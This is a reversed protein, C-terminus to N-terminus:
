KSKKTLEVVGWILLLAGIGGMTWYLWTMGGTDSGDGVASPDIGNARLKAEDKPIIGMDEIAKMVDGGSNLISFLKAKVDAPVDLGNIVQTYHAIKDADDVKPEGGDDGKVMYPMLAATASLAAVILSAIDFGTTNYYMDASDGTAEYNADDRIDKQLLPKKSMGREIEKELQKVDGGFNRGWRDLLKAYLTPNNKRTQAMRTALGFMNIKTLVLFANRPVALGIAKAGQWMRRGFTGGYKALQEAKKEKIKKKEERKIKQYERGKLGQAKLEAKMKRKEERKTKRADQRGLRNIKRKVSGKQDALYNLRAEIDGLETIHDDYKREVKDYEADLEQVRKVYPDSEKELEDIKLEYINIQASMQLASKEADASQRVYKNLESLSNSAMASNTISDVKARAQTYTKNLADVKELLYTIGRLNTDIKNAKEDIKNQNDKIAAMLNDMYSLYQEQATDIQDVRKFLREAEDKMKSRSWNSYGYDGGTADYGANWDIPMVKDKNRRLVKFETNQALFLTGM